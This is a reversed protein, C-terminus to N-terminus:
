SALALKVVIRYALSGPPHCAYLTGTADPSPDAIWTEEPGVIMSGTVRYVSRVGAVTFIVEDGAVLQDLHRFPHSNTIRHGAFVTNGPQGPLATGTWHSPGLDINNLTVGEYTAHDLGLAPIEISGFEKIAEPFYPDRPIHVPRAYVVVTTTTTTAATSPPALIPTIAGRGRTSAPVGRSESGSTGCAAGAALLM